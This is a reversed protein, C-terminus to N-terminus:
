KDTYPGVFSSFGVGLTLDLMVPLIIIRGGVYSGSASPWVNAM